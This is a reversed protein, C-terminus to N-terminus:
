GHAARKKSIYIALLAFLCFAASLVLAWASYAAVVLILPLNRLLDMGFYPGVIAVVFDGGYIVASILVAWASARLLKLAASRRVISVPYVGRPQM